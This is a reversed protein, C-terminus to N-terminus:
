RIGLPDNADGGGGSSKAGGLVVRGGFQRVNENYAELVDPGFGSAVSAYHKNIITRAQEVAAKLQQPTKLAGTAFEQKLRELEPITVAAGSRNKLTINFLKQFAQRGFKVEDPVALDPLLSKPGSIYEAIKPADALAKEVSGLVADAEPLNAKELAAGLKTTNTNLNRLKEADIKNGKLELDLLKLQNALGANERKFENSRSTLAELAQNHRATEARRENADTIRQLNLSHAQELQTRKLDLADASQQLRAARDEQQKYLNLALEPKGYQVAAGAIKTMDGSAGAVAERFLKENKLAEMRAQYEPTEQQLRQQLRLMQVQRQAAQDQADEGALQKQVDPSLVGGAQRLGRALSELVGAM